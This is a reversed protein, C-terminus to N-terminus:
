ACIAAMMCIVRLQGVWPLDPDPDVHAEGVVFDVFLDILEAKDAVHSYIAMPSVGLEGAIRRITLGSLGVEDVVAVAAEVIRRRNLPPRKASPEDAAGLWRPGNASENTSTPSSM